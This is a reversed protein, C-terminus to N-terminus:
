EDPTDEERTLLVMLRQRDAKSLREARRAFSWNPTGDVMQRSGLLRGDHRWITRRQAGPWYNEIWAGGSPATHYATVVEGDCDYM